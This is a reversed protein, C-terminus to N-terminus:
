EEDLRYRDALPDDEPDVAAGDHTVGVRHITGDPIEESGV